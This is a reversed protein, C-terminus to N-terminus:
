GRSTEKASQVSELSATMRLRVFLDDSELELGPSDHVELSFDELTM